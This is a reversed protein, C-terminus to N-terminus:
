SGQLTEVYYWGGEIGCRDKPNGGAVDRLPGLSEPLGAGGPRSCQAPGELQRSTVRGASFNFPNGRCGLSVLRWPAPTAAAPNAGLVAPGRSRPLEELKPGSGPLM